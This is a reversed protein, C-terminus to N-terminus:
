PTRRIKGGATKPLAEVFAIVQPVKYDELSRRCHARVAGEELAAEPKLVIEARIAQGLLPDAVGIVRCELVGDLRYIANEVELPSVKEGRCKIIDDKRAVFTFYGEEDVSFLDGSHMVREWPYRGPLLVKSTAELDNWYGVMVNAGRVVLEGVGGPGLRNGDDDEIWLEVNRMGKGVSAPRRDIQDPPLYTTRLVETLGHMLYIRTQPFVTRLRPIFSQPMAAAANTVYRLHGFREEGLTSLQLLLAFLTPVGAFGTVKAEKLTRVLDYPYGFGKELILTGGTRVTVLLQLLGYGFSLQLVSLIVDDASNELYEEVSECVTDFNLHTLTVGKPRGTSGSTYIIAALDTSILPPPDLVGPRRLLANLSCAGAPLDGDGAVILGPPVAGPRNEAAITGARGGPCVVFRAGAHQVLYSFRDPPTTPNVVVMCGGARLTGFIAAVAELSNELCILVRDGRELSSALLHAAFSSAMADLRAYSTREAGCVLATKEPFRKASRALYDHILM